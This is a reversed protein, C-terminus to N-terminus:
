QKEAIPNETVYDEIITMEGMPTTVVSGRKGEEVEEEEAFGDRDKFPTLPHEEKHHIWKREISVNMIGLISVKDPATDMLPVNKCIQVAKAFGKLDLTGACEADSQSTLSIKLKADKEVDHFCLEAPEWEFGGSQKHLTWCKQPVEGTAGEYDLIATCTTNGTLLADSVSKIQMFIFDAGDEPDDEPKQLPAPTTVGVADASKSEEVHLIDKSEKVPSIEKAQAPEVAVPESVPKAKVADTSSTCGM